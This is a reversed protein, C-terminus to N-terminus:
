AAMRFPQGTLRSLDTRYRESCRCVPHALPALIPGGISQYTDHVGVGRRNMAPISSCVPCVREDAATLWFRRVEHDHLQGSDVAQVYADRVGAVAAQMAETAAITQARHALSREAYAAVMQDIQEPALVRRNSLARIVAQDFRKDRLARALVARDGMRLMRRYNLVAQTQQSTLGIVLRLTDLTASVSARSQLADLLVARVVAAEGRRVAALFAQRLQAQSTAAAIPDYVVAGSFDDNAALRAAELFLDAVPQYAPLFIRDVEPAQLACVVGQVDFRALMAQLAASGALVGSLATLAALLADRIERERKAALRRALDDDTQIDSALLRATM